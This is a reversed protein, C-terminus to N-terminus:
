KEVPKNATVFYGTTELEWNRDLNDLLPALKQGIFWVPTLLAKICLRLMKPGRIFQLSFYNAKMTLMTFFGSQPEIVVNEFGAKCLLYNIGYSTYRYYDYPSEHIRWQWPVQLVFYGGPKLIRYAENLMVQPEHLHEMVSFSTVTDAVSSEIPLISNLDAEIDVNTDHHSSSWDVSIYESVYQLFFTKYPCEGAGLDYLKGRYYKINKELFQDSLDYILWNYARRNSHGKSIKM